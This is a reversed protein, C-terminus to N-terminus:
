GGKAVAIATGSWTGSTITGVTVLNSLTTISSVSTTGTDIKGADLLTNNANYIAPFNALGTATSISTPNVNGFKAAKGIALWGIPINVGIVFLVAVLVTVIVVTELRTM